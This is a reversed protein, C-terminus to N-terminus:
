EIVIKKNIIENDVILRLTYIGKDLNSINIKAFNQNSEIVNNVIVKGNIDILAYDIKSNNSSLEINLYDNAPNPYINFNVNNLSFVNLIVDATLSVPTGDGCSNSPTCTIDGNIAGVVVDISFSTSSGTWDSPITWTYTVSPIATVSYTENTGEDPNANGTVASPQAPVDVVNVYSSFVVTNPGNGDDVTLSVTYTGPTSYTVTPNQNPSTSPTGGAFSWDWSTPTGGTTMDEFDVTGGACVQAPIGM